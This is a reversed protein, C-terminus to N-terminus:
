NSINKWILIKSNKLAIIVCDSFGQSIGANQGKTVIVNAVALYTLSYIKFTEVKVWDHKEIIKEDFIIPEVNLPKAKGSVFILRGFGFIYKDYM